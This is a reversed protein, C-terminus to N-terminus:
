LKKTITIVTNIHEIYSKEIVINPLSSFIEMIISETWVSRADKLIDSIKKSDIDNKLIRSALITANIFKFTAHGEFALKGVIARFVDIRQQFDIKDLCECIVNNIFGNVLNNLEQIKINQYGEISDTDDIILNVNRNM